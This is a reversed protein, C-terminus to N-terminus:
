SNKEQYAILVLQQGIEKEIKQELETIQDKVQDNITAVQYDSFERM